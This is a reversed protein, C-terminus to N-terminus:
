FLFFPFCACVAFHSASSLAAPARPLQRVQSLFLVTPFHVNVGEGDADGVRTKHAVARRWDTTVHGSKAAMPFTVSLATVQQMKSAALVLLPLMSFRRMSLM